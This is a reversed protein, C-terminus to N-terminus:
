SARVAFMWPKARFLQLEKRWNVREPNFHTKFKVDRFQNMVQMYAPKFSSRNGEYYFLM